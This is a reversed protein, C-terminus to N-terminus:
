SAHDVNCLIIYMYFLVFYFIQEYIHLYIM